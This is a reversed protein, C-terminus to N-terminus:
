PAMQLQLRGQARGVGWDEFLYFTDAQLKLAHKSFYYSVGGGLEKEPKFGGSPDGLLTLNGVRASLEFRDAILQGVQFFGGYGSRAVDTVIAGDVSATNRDELARRFFLEGTMSLGAYKFSTDAGFHAYDAWPGTRFVDGITSRARDSQHNFAGSMAAQLRPKTQKFDVEDPDDGLEGGVPRLAVRGTYLFGYGGSARNRGDGGFVGLNYGLLGDLGFVDESFVQVGVDRDLNLESTVISRDVLQLNGSSVVRQRGFPVKMQGVRLRFDRLPSITVFADRLPIPAVPDQEQAAFALQIRMTVLNDWAHADMSVRLRRIQLDAVPDAAEDETVVWTARAQSRARLGMGFSGDKTEVGVGEGFRAKFRVTVEDEAEDALSPSAVLLAAWGIAYSWRM